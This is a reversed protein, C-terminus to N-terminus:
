TLARLREQLSWPMRTRYASAPAGPPLTYDKVEGTLKLHRLVPGTGSVLGSLVLAQVSKGAVRGTLVLPPNGRLVVRGALVLPRPLDVAKALGTVAVPVTRRALVRGGVDMSRSIAAALSVIGDLPLAVVPRIATRGTLAVVATQDVRVRADLGLATTVKSTVQGALALPVTQAAKVRGAAGFAQLQAAFVQGGLGLGILAPPVTTPRPATVAEGVPWYALGETSAAPVSLIAEGGRFRLSPLPGPNQVTGSLGLPAAMPVGAASGAAYHDRVRAASLATPYVAVEDLAGKWWDNGNGSQGIAFAMGANSATGTRLETWVVAGNVYVSVATASVTLAVHYTTGVTLAYGTSRVGGNFNFVQLVRTSGDIFLEWAQNSGFALARPNGAFGADLRLWCELTGPGVGLGLGTAPVSVWGTTGDFLASPDQGAPLLSSQALAVGGAYTGHRGAGSADQATTGTLEGLRWYGLPGDALVQDRYVTRPVVVQGGLGVGFTRPTFVLTGGALVIAAAGGPYTATAGYTAQTRYTANEGFTRQVQLYQTTDLLEEWGAPATAARSTPSLFAALVLAAPTELAAVTPGNVLLGASTADLTAVAAVGFNAAAVEVVAVSNAGAGTSSPFSFSTEGGAAIRTYVKLDYSIGSPTGDHATARLSWGATDTALDDHARFAVLLNGATAATPLTISPNATLTGSHVAQVIRPFENRLLAEAAVRGLVAATPPAVLAEVAVRGLQAVSPAQRAAEVLLHTVRARAPAQVAAEVLLSTARLKPPPLLAVYEAWHAAVRAPSLVTGYVAFEDLTGNYRSTSGDYATGVRFSGTGSYVAGATRQAVQAGDKYLTQQRTTANFTAVWHHWTGVDSTTTADLDDNWFAFTVTTANRYGFHLGQGNAGTGQGAFLRMSNANTATKEFCELSFSVGNLAIGSASMGSTSGDFAAATDGTGALAGTQGLAIGTATYTGPRSNGSADAATTGSSEGLRWYALPSDALVESPYTM